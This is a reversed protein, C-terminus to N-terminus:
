PGQNYLSANAYECIMLSASPSVCGESVSAGRPPLHLELSRPHKLSVEEGEDEEALEELREFGFKKESGLVARTLDTAGGSLTRVASGSLTRVASIAGMTSQLM